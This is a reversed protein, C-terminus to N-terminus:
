CFGCEELYSRYLPVRKWDRGLVHTAALINEVWREFATGKVSEDVARFPSAYDQFEIWGGPRM